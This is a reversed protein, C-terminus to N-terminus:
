SFFKGLPIPVHLLKQFCIYIFLSIGVPMTILLIPKRIRSFLLLALVSVLTSIYFGLMPTLVIYGAIVGMTIAVMKFDGSDDDEKSKISQVFLIVSLIILAGAYVRPMFAAGVETAELKKFSLSLYFVMISICIVLISSIFDVKKKNM